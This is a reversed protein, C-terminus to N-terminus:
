VSDDPKENDGETSSRLKRSRYLYAAVLRIFEDARENEGTLAGTLKGFVGENLVAADTLIERLEPSAMFQDLANHDIQEGIRPNEAAMGAAAIVFGQIHPNAFEAGLLANIRAVIESLLEQQPDQRSVHTGVGTIAPLEPTNLDGFLGIDAKGRDDQRVQRLELGSEDM